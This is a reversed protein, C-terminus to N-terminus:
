SPAPTALASAERTIVWTGAIAKDGMSLPRLWLEYVRGTVLPALVGAVPFAAGMGVSQRVIQFIRLRQGAVASGSIVRDVRAWMTVAVMGAPTPVRIVALGVDPRGATAVVVLPEYAPGHTPSPPPTASPATIPSPVVNIAPGAPLTSAGSSGGATATGCSSLGTVSVLVAALVAVAAGVSRRGVAGHRSKWTVM